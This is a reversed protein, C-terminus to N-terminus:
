ENFQQSSDFAQIMKQCLQDQEEQSIELKYASQIGTLFVICLVIVKM